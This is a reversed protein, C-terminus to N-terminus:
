AKYEPLDRIINKNRKEDTDKLDLTYAAGSDFSIKHRHSEIKAKLDEVTDELIQINSKLYFNEQKLLTIEDQLEELKNEKTEEM